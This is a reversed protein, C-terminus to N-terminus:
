PEYLRQFLEYINQEKFFPLSKHFLYTFEPSITKNKDFVPSIKLDNQNTPTSKSAHKIKSLVYSPQLQQYSNASPAKQFNKITKQAQLSKLSLGPFPTKKQFITEVQKGKELNLLFAQKTLFYGLCLFIGAYLPWSWMMIQNDQRNWSNM